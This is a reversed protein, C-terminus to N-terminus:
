YCEFQVWDDTQILNEELAQKLVRAIPDFGTDFWDPLGAIENETRDKQEQQIRECMNLLLGVLIEGDDTYEEISLPYMHEYNEIVKELEEPLDNFYIKGICYNDILIIETPMNKFTGITQPEGPIKLNLHTRYGM